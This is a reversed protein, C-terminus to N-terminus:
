IVFLVYSSFSVNLIIISSFFYMRISNERGNYFANVLVAKSHTVWDTKNVPKRLQNFSYDTAYVRLRLTNFLLNDPEIELGDYLEELKNVDTLENPYAIHTTLAEAKQIAKARTVENMWETNHLINLFEGHIDKVM